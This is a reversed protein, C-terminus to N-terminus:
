VARKVVKLNMDARIAFGLSQYLAIAGTNTEYAHLYVAENRASIEGAVFRLMLKGLGKGQFDPHVCLGSLESFGPQRMRQGCMAVIRGDVRIGWFTGLAQARLTFPGPKTLTALALMEEADAETLPEIRPDGIREFAKEALMQVLVAEMKIELTRPLAVPAAEVLLLVDEDSSPLAALAALSEPSDDAPAAFLVVSPDYRRALPSGEAFDAHVTALANWAPRDLIHSM